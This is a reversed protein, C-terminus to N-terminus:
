VGIDWSAIIGATRKEKGTLRKPINTRVYIPVKEAPSVKEFVFPLEADGVKHFTLNDKSIEVFTSPQDLFAKDSEPDLAISSSFDTKCYNHVKPKLYKRYYYDKVAM